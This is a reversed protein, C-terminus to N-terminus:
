DAIAADDAVVQAISDALGALYAAHLDAASIRGGHGDPLDRSGTATAVIASRYGLDLAARVTSDVCNHTMYGIVILHRRGTAALIEALRTGNFANATTKEVITEGPAPRLPPAPAFGPGAPDFLAANGRHLVHIIPTGLQRARALLREGVALSDAIDPLPLRGDIYERQADIILLASESLRPPPLEVGVLDFLRPPQRNQLSTTM